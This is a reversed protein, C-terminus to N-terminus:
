GEMAEESVRRANSRFMDTSALIPLMAATSVNTCSFPFLGSLCDLFLCLDR